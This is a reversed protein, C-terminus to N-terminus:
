EKEHFSVPYKLSPPIPSIVTASYAIGGEMYQSTYLYKM